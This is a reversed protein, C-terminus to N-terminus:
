EANDVMEILKKKMRDRAQEKTSADVYVIESYGLLGLNLELVWNKNNFLRGSFMSERIRTKHTM